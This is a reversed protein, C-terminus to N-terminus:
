DAKLWVRPDLKKDAKRVEFYVSARKKSGNQEVWGLIDGGRAQDGKSKERKSLHASVTFFRKGNM